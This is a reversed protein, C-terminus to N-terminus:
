ISFTRSNAFRFLSKFNQWRPNTVASFGPLEKYARSLSKNPLLGRDECFAIFIIRDFLRQAMEIAADLPQEHESMLHAILKTRQQSYYDYLQDGVERQRDNTKAILDLIRPPLGATTEILGKRHFIAYFRRFVDFKRLSQLTFHEYKAPTATRDYLRFSVFNSVIGWRCAAPLAYLYDWCQAVANRGQSRARDLHINAGKLEVVALPVKDQGPRFRGLAADVHGGGSGSTHEVHFEQELHYTGEDTADNVPHYGLVKGLIDECFPGQLQTEHTNALEGSSELDAWKLIVPHAAKADDILQQDDGAAKLLRALILPDTRPQRLALPNDDDFLKDHEAM